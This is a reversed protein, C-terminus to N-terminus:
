HKAGHKGMSEWNQTVWQETQYQFKIQNTKFHQELLTPEARLHKLNYGVEDGADRKPTAFYQRKLDLCIELKVEAHQRKQEQSGRWAQIVHERRM